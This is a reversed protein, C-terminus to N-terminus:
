TTRKTYNACYIYIHEETDLDYMSFKTIGLNILFGLLNDLVLEAEVVDLDDM